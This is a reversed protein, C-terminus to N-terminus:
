RAGGVNREDVKAEAAALAGVHQDILQVISTNPDDHDSTVCCESVIFSSRKELLGDVFRL